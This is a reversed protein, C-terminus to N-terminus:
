FPFPLSPFLPSCAGFGLVGVALRLFIFRLRKTWILKLRLFNDICRMFIANCPPFIVNCGIFNANCRTFNIHCLIFIANCCKFIVNYRRFNIRSCTFISNCCRLIANCCIFNINCHIFIINCLTFIVNCNKFWDLWFWLHRKEDSERKKLISQNLEGKGHLSQTKSLCLPSLSPVLALLSSLLLNPEPIGAHRFFYFIPIPM